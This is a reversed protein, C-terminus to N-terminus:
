GEAKTFDLYYKEGTKITSILNPNTITISLEGSPTWRAFSSDESNGEPDFAADSVARMKIEECDPSHPIVETVQFKARM